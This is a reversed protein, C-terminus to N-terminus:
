ERRLYSLIEKDAVVEEEGDGYEELQVGGADQDLGLIKEARRELISEQKQNM